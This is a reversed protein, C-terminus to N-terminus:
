HCIMDPLPFCFLRCIINLTTDAPKIEEVAELKLVSEHKKKKQFSAM